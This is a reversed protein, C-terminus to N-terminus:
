SADTEVQLRIQRLVAAVHECEEFTGEYVIARGQTHAEYMVREARELFQQSRTFLRSTHIKEAALSKAYGVNRVERANIKRLAPECDLVALVDLYSPVRDTPLRKGVAALFELDAPTDLTWREDALGPLPAVLTEASFRARNNRIFPTVHERDSPRSAEAAAALLARATMVECDLGDPWTPPDINSAYDVGAATRLRVTAGVVAPDLFPCDATIRVVIDAGSARTASAYRDLVDQESGRHCAVGNENCWGAVAADAQAMSTAIWVDDIGVAARLARVVWALPPRGVLDRLVKGPLRSAGMRAQVIAVTKVPERESAPAHEPNLVM